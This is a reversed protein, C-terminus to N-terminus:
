FNKKFNKALAYVAQITYGYLAAVDEASKEECYFSRLALYQRHLPLIPNTFFQIINQDTPRTKGM